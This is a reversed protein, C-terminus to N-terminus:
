RQPPISKKLLETLKWKLYSYYLYSVVLGPLLCIREIHEKFTLKRGPEFLERRDFSNHIVILAGDVSIQVKPRCSCLVSETHEYYDDVPVVHLTPKV